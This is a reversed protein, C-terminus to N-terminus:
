AESAEHFKQWVLSRLAFIPSCHPVHAKLYLQQDALFRENSQDALREQVAAPIQMAHHAHVAGAHMAVQVNVFTPAM